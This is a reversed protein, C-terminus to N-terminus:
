VWYKSTLHCCLIGGKESSKLPVGVTPKHRISGSGGSEALTVVYQNVQLIGAEEQFNNEGNGSENVGSLDRM